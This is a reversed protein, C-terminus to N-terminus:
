MPQGPNPTSPPTNPPMTPPTGGGAPPTSMPADGKKMFGLYLAVVAVVLHLINSMMNVPMAVLLASGTFFGLLTMLAYIVGVAKFYNGVMSMGAKAAWIGLGGTVIYVLNALMGVEFVGLLMGNSTIGPIFGLVGVLLLVVGVWMAAKM